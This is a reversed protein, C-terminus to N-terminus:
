ASRHHSGLAADKGDEVVGMWRKDQVRDGEALVPRFLLETLRNKVEIGFEGFSNRKSGNEHVVSLIQVQWSLHVSEHMVAQVGLIENRNHTEIAEIRRSCRM